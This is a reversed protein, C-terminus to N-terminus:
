SGGVCVCVCVCVSKKETPNYLIISDELLNKEGENEARLPLFLFSPNRVRAIQIWQARLEM